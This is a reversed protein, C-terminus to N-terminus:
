GIVKSDFRLFIFVSNVKRMNSGMKELPWIMEVIVDVVPWQDQEPSPPGAVAASTLWDYPVATSM